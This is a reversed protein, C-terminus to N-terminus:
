ATIPVLGYIAKGTRSCAACWTARAARAPLRWSAAARSRALGGNTGVWINGDRDEWLGRTFPNPLGRARRVAPAAWRAPARDAGPERCDVPQRAPRGDHFHCTAAWPPAMSRLCSGAARWLPGSRWHGGGVARPRSGRLHRARFEGASGPRARYNTFKGDAFRSLNVGAVIWLDGPHDAFLASVNNDPLGEKVTYTQFRQDRYRVLGASTAIWLSGDASVALSTISNAPLDGNAKNFVTFDYGDFRALGEDTGLWLYGDPTQAIARITDQPLGHDETWVTRSYQTFRKHPDLATAARPFLLESFRWAQGAHM